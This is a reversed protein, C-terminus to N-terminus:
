LKRSRGQKNREMTDRGMSYRACRNVTDEALICAKHSYVCQQNQDGGLEDGPVTGSM